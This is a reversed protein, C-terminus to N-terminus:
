TVCLPLVVLPEATPPFEEVQEIEGMVQDLAANLRNLSNVLRVAQELVEDPPQGPRVNALQASEIAHAVSERQRQLGDVAIKTDQVLSKLELKAISALCHHTHMAAKGVRDSQSFAIRTRPFTVSVESPAFFEASGPWKEKLKTGTV